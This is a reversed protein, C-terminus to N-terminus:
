PAPGRVLFAAVQVPLKRSDLPKTIYGDCATKRAKEDEGKLEYATLAIIPVHKLRAEARLRRALMAGDTGPLALDMLILDPVTRDLIDQVKGADSAQEVVYGEMELVDTALRLNAANDVVILIRPSLRAEM